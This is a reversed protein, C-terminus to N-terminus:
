ESVGKFINLIIDIVKKMIQACARAHMWMGSEVLKAVEDPSRLKKDYLKKLHVM